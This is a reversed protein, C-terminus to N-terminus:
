GEAIIEVLEVSAHFWTNTEGQWSLNEVRCLRYGVFDATVAAGNAPAASLTITRADTDVSAVSVPTGNVKAVLGSSKPYFRREENALATPLAFTTASGNGTGLAVASRADDRPDAVYFAEFQLGRARTLFDDVDQREDNPRSLPFSYRRRSIDALKTRREAWPAGARRVSVPLEDAYSYNPFPSETFVQTPM